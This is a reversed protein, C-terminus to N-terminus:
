RAAISCIRLAYPEGPLDIFFLDTGKPDEIDVVVANRSFKLMNPESAPKMEALEKSTKGLFDGPDRHPNLIAAQARRIQLEVQTKDTINHGFSEVTSANEGQRKLSIQCSWSSSAGRISCEM